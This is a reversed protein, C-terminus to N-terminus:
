TPGNQPDIVDNMPRGKLSWPLMTRLVGDRLVFHHALAALAHITVLGLLLWAGLEHLSHFLDTLDRDRPLLAPITGFFLAFPKGRLVSQAAGTLPQLVLLIYLGYENARAAVRQPAPMSPPLAPRRGGSLRWALRTITLTWLLVGTSRHVLLFVAAQERDSTLGRMLATTFMAIVLALTVWHIGITLTDFREPPKGERRSGANTTRDGTM